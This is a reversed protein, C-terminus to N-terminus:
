LFNNHAYDKYPWSGLLMGLNRLWINRMCSFGQQHLHPWSCSFTMPSFSWHVNFELWVFSILINRPKLMYTTRNFWLVAFLILSRSFHKAPSYDEGDIHSCTVATDIICHLALMLVSVQRVSLLELIWRLNCLRILKTLLKLFNSSTETGCSYKCFHSPIYIMTAANMQSMGMYRVQSLQIYLIYIYIQGSNLICSSSKMFFLVYKGFITTVVPHM